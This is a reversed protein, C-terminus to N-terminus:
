RENEMNAANVTGIANGLTKIEVKIQWMRTLITIADEEFNLSDRDLADLCDMDAAYMEELEALRHELLGLAIKTEKNM